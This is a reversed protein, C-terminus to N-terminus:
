TASKINEKSQYAKKFNDLSVLDYTHLDTVNFLMPNDNTIGDCIYYGKFREVNGKTAVDGDFAMRQTDGNSSGLLIKTAFQSRIDSSLTTDTKPSQTAVVCFVSVARGKQVIQTLLALFEKKQKSDMAAVASGIEDAVVVIPALDIDFARLGLKQQKTVAKRLIKQREKLRRCVNRLLSLISDTEDAIKEIPYFEKFASFEDKPDVFYVDSGSLFLQLVVSLLLTSKGSGSKGWAIIHPKDALNVVLDEQLKIEHSKQKMEDLSHPRWTKDSAVDELVFKYLLGDETVRSSVVAYNSFRGRFSANVDEVLRDLDYMGPLKEIRVEIQKQLSFSVSVDPVSVHPTDQLRNVTMTALLSKKIAREYKLEYCLTVINESLAVRKITIIFIIINIIVFIFITIVRVDVLNISYLLISLLFSFLSILYWVSFRSYLPVKFINNSNRKYIRAM